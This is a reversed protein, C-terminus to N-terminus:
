PQSEIRLLDDCETTSNFAAVTLRLTAAAGQIRDAVGLCSRQVLM